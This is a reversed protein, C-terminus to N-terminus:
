TQVPITLTFCAGQGPGASEARLTGGLQQAALASAHLGFGHRNPKTTFGHEFVRPLIEEAIGVGTDRVAICVMADAQAVAVTIVAPSSEAVEDCAQIANQLLNVLIQLAKTKDVAVNPVADFERVIRIRRQDPSDLVLHLADEVLATPNLSEVIPAPRAYSQQAAVVAKIEEIHRQMSAIEQLLQAQAERSTTTLLRLFEPVRRAKPDETFYRGLDNAHADLMESLTALYGVRLARTKEAAISASVNLSNLVNGVNHLVSTAVEAMGAQRSTDLLQRYTAALKAEAEKRASIDELIVVLQVVEGGAHIAAVSLSTWVQRENPLQFRAELQYSQSEGRLLAAHLTTAQRRDEAHLLALIPEYDNAVDCALDLIRRYAANFHHKGDLDARKWSIGVPAHELVLGFLSQRQQQERLASGLEGTRLQVRHELDANLQRYREESAALANSKEATARVQATLERTRLLVESELRAKHRRQVYSSLVATTAFAGIAGIAYAVWALPTRYWPPLIRFALQAEGAPEGSPRIHVRYAGEKLRYFSAAGAAGLPVWGSGGGELWVEFAASQGYASRVAFNVALSNATFPLEGLDAGQGFRFRGTAPFFVSTIAVRPREEAAEPMAPDYRVLHGTGWCWLVGDDQLTFELPTFGLPVVVRSAPKGDAAPALYCAATATSFWVGGNSTSLPHGQAAALEPWQRLLATAPVFRQAVRDYQVVRNSVFAYVQGEFTFLQVWGDGLGSDAGFMRVVPPGDGMEVRIVRSAGAELWVVGDGDRVHGYADSMLECPFRELTYNDGSRSVYGTEGRAVYLSRGAIMPTLGLRANVIEPAVMQWRDEHFRLVGAETGAFLEGDLDVLNYTLRDVPSVDEFEALRGSADYKGRFVTSEAQVWLRGAHRVPKNYILSKTLLPDFRTVRSPLHIRVVGEDLLAWLSGGGAYRVKAARALRHDLTRDLVQTVRGDEDFLAVGLADIAAALYRGEVRCLDNIRYKSALLPDHTFERVISGDFVRLGSKTGLLTRGDDLAIASTMGDRALPERSSAVLRNGAPSLRYLFGSSGNSAYVEGAHSFALEIGGAEGAIRPERGPRWAVIPGNNAHWLWEGGSEDFHFFILGSAEVAAPVRAVERRRWRGESTFEIRAFGTRLGVYCGGDADVAFRANAEVGEDAARFVQWRVGDGIALENQALLAVRGDPLLQLDSPPHTLGIAEAPLVVFEPPGREILGPQASGM